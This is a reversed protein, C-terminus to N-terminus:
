TLWLQESKEWSATKSLHTKHFTEHLHFNYSVRGPRVVSYFKLISWSSAVKLWVRVSEVVNEADGWRTAELNEQVSPGPSNRGTEERSWEEVDQASM